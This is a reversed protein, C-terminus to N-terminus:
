PTGGKKAQGPPVKKAADPTVIPPTPRPTAVFPPPGLEVDACAEETIKGDRQLYGLELEVGAAEDLERVLAAAIGRTAMHLLATQLGDRTDISLVFGSGLDIFAM